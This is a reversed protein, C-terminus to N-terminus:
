ILLLNGFQFGVFLFISFNVDFIGPSVSGAKKIAPGDASWLRHVSYKGSQHGPRQQRLQPLCIQPPPRKRQHTNHKNRRGSCKRQWCGAPHLSWEIRNMQIDTWGPGSHVRLSCRDTPSAGGSENITASKYTVPPLLMVSNKTTTLAGEAPTRSERSCIGCINENAM